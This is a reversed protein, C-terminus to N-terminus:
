GLEVECTRGRDRRRGRRTGMEGRVVERRRLVLHLLHRHSRIPPQYPSKRPKYETSSGVDREGGTRERVEAVVGSANVPFYRLPYRMMELAGLPPTETESSLRQLGRGERVSVPSAV